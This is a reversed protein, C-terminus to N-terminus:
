AKVMAVHTEGPQVWKGKLGGSQIRVLRRTDQGPWPVAEPADCPASTRRTFSDRSRSVVKDDVVTFVFFNGPTFVASYRSPQAKPAEAILVVALGARLGVAAAYRDSARRLLDKPWAQPAKPIGPRRGDALPDLVKGDTVCISHLGTFGPCADFQTTAVPAYSIAWGLARDARQALAWADEFAITRLDLTVGYARKATAQVQRPMTGGSIDHTGNDNLTQNRFQTGTPHKASEFAVLMAGVTTGCNQGALPGGDFQSLPTM